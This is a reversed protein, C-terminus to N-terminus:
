KLDIKAVTLFEKDLHDFDNDTTLLTAELVSATAAIWIDNKGMNRASFNSKKYSLRGQSFGDIEAYRNVTEETNIDAIIVQHLVRVIREIKRKGWGNKIAIAKIEGVSVISIVAENAVDLPQFNNDVFEQTLNPERLYAILINTDLLFIM